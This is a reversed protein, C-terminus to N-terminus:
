DPELKFKRCPPVNQCPRRYRPLFVRCVILFWVFLQHTLTSEEPGTPATRTAGSVLGMRTQSMRKVALRALKEPSNQRDHVMGNWSLLMNLSSKEIIFFILTYKITKISFRNSRLLETLSKRHHPDSTAAFPNYHFNEETISINLVQTWQIQIYM